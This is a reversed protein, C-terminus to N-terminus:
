VISNVDDGDAGIAVIGGSIAVSEGFDGEFIDQPNSMSAMLAGTTQNFTYASGILDDAGPSSAVIIGREGAVSYGFM